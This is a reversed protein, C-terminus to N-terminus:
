ALFSDLSSKGNKKTNDSANGALLQTPGKTLNIRLVNMPRLLRPAFHGPAARDHASKRAIVRPDCKQLFYTM